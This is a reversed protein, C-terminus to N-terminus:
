PTTFYHTGNAVYEPDHWWTARDPYLSVTNYDGYFNYYRDPSCWPIFHAMCVRIQGSFRVHAKYAGQYMLQPSNPDIVFMGLKGQWTLESNQDTSFTTIRGSSPNYCVDLTADVWAVRITGPGPVGGQGFYYRMRPAVCVHSAGATVRSAGGAAAAAATAASAPGVAALLGAIACAAPFRSKM